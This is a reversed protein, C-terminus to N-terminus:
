RRASISGSVSEVFGVDNGNCDEGINPFPPSIRRGGRDRKGTYNPYSGLRQQRGLRDSALSVLEFVGFAM